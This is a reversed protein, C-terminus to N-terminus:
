SNRTIIQRVSILVDELQLRRDLNNDEIMLQQESQQMLDLMTQARKKDIPSNYLGMYKQTYTQMVRAILRRILSIDHDLLLECLTIVDTQNKLYDNFQKKFEGVLDLYQTTSLQAALLPDGGALELYQAAQANDLGETQLWALAEDTSPLPMTWQQCRSRVTVPIKGLQHSALIILTNDAPEELTKLLSNASAISMKDAPYLVAIKVNDYNRTLYVTHILHRVQGIKINKNLKKQDGDYELTVLQCDPYTNALMLQCSSCTQCPQDNDRNQCLLTMSLHWLFALENTKGPMSLLIAHPLRQQIQLKVLQSLVPQYWIRNIPEILSDAYPATM